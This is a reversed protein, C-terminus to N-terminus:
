LFREKVFNELRAMAEKHNKVFEEHANQHIHNTGCFVGCASLGFERAVSLVSFFEMNEYGVGLRLFQKALASDTSIYNSSNVIKQTEYSVFRPKECKKNSISDKHISDLDRSISDKHISDKHISNECISNKERSFKASEIDKINETNQLNKSKISDKKLAISEISEISEINTSIKDQEKSDAKCFTECFVDRSPSNKMLNMSDKKCSASEISKFENSEIFKSENSKNSENSEISDLNKEASHSFSFPDAVIFNEIPTYSQNQLFSLEIQTAATSTFVQLLPENIDYVGCTGIFIIERPAEQLILRSLGASSEVLGVGISKAFSFQEVRGACVIM